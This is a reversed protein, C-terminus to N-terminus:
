KIGGCEMILTKLKRKRKETLVILTPNIRKKCELLNFLYIAIPM